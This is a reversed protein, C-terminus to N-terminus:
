GSGAELVQQAPRTRLDQTREVARGADSPEGLRQPRYRARRGVMDARELCGAQHPAVAAAALHEHVQRGAAARQELEVM